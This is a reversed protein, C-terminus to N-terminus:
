SLIISPQTVSTPSGQKMSPLTKRRGMNSVRSAVVFQVPGEVPGLQRPSRWGGIGPTLMGAQGSALRRPAPGPSQTVARVQRQCGAMGSSSTQEAEKQMSDAAAANM